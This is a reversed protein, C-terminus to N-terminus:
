SVPRPKENSRHAAVFRRLREPDVPGSKAGEPQHAENHAELAELYESLSLLRWDLGLQGCNSLVQGKSFPKAAQARSGPRKKKLQVGEIAANLIAWAIRQGEILPRAPYVYADVLSLATRPGVEVEEGDVLASNGGILGLRITERVDALMAAGGGLYVADADDIGLGASVQDYIAFASKGTKRELELFQPLPLAFTYDGDAFGLNISTSKM